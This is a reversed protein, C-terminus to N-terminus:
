TFVGHVSHWAIGCDMWRHDDLHLKKKEEEEVESTLKTLYVKAKDYNEKSLLLDM